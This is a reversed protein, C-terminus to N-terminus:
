IKILKTDGEEGSKPSLNGFTNWADKEKADKEKEGEGGSPM